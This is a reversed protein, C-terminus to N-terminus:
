VNKTYPEPPKKGGRERKAQLAKFNVSSKPLKHGGATRRGQRSFPVDYISVRTIEMARARIGEFDMYDGAPPNIGQDRLWFYVALHRRARLRDEMAARYQESTPEADPELFVRQLKEAYPITTNNFFDGRTAHLDHMLKVRAEFSLANLQELPLFQMDRRVLQELQAVDMSLVPSLARDAIPMRTLGLQQEFPREVPRVMIEGKALFFRGSKQSVANGTKKCCM